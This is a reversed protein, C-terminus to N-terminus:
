KNEKNPSNYRECPLDGNFHPCSYRGVLARVIRRWWSLGEDEAVALGCTLDHPDFGGAYPCIGTTM